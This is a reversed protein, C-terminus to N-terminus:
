EARGFSLEEEVQVVEVLGQGPRPLPVHLPEGRAERDSAAVPIERCASDRAPRSRPASTGGPSASARRSSRAPPTSCTRPRRRARARRASAPSAGCTLRSRFITRFARRFSLARANSFSVAVDVSRCPDEGVMWEDHRDLVEERVGLRVLDVAPDPIPDLAIARRELVVVAQQEVAVLVRVERALDDADPADPRAGPDDQEDAAVHILREEQLALLRLPGHELRVHPLAIEAVHAAPDDFPLAHHLGRAVDEEAPQPGGREVALHAVEVHALQPVPLSRRVRLPDQRCAEVDVRPHTALDQGPARASPRGPPWRTTGRDCRSTRDRSRASRRETRRDSRVRSSPTRRRRASRAARPSALGTARFKGRARSTLDTHARAQVM